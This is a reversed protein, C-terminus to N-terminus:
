CLTLDRKAQPCQTDSLNGLSWGMLLTSHSARAGQHWDWQPLVLCQAPGARLPPSFAAYCSLGCPTGGWRQGQCGPAMM